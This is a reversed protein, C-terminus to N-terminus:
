YYKHAKKLREKGLFLSLQINEYSLNPILLRIHIVEKCFFHHLEAEPFDHVM